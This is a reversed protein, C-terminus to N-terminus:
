STVRLSLSSYELTRFYHTTVSKFSHFKTSATISYFTFCPCPASCISEKAKTQITVLWLSQLSSPSVQKVSLDCFIGM